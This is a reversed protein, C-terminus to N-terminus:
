DLSIEAKIGLIGFVKKLLEMIEDADIKGDALSTQAWESLVGAIQLAKWFGVKVQM